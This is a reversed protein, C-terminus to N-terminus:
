FTNLMYVKSYLTKNRISTNLHLLNAVNGYIYENVRKRKRRIYLKVKSYCTRVYEFTHTLYLSRSTTIFGFQKNM